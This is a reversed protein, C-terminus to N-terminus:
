TFFWVSLLAMAALVKSTWTLVNVAEYTAIRPYFAHSFMVLQQFIKFFFGNMIKDSWQVGM